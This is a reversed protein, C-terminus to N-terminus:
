HTLQPTAKTPSVAPTQSSTAAPAETQASPVQTTVPRVQSTMITVPVQYPVCVAVQRTITETVPRCKVTPVTVTKSQPVMITQTCTVTETIPKPVMRTVTVDYPQIEFTNVCQTVKYPIRQVRREPVTVTEQVPKFKTRTRQVNFTEPVYKVAPRTVAVQQEYCTTVSNYRVCPSACGGCGGGCRHGCQHACTVVPVVTTVPIRQTVYCVQSEVIKRMRTVPVTETVCEPIMRTIVKNTMEVTCHVQYLTREVNKTVPIKRYCKEVVTKPECVYRTIQKDVTQQKPVCYTITRTENVVESVMRTVPVNETRYETRYCTQSVTVPVQVCEYATVTQAVASQPSGSTAGQESPAQTEGSVFPVGVLGSVAFLVGATMVVRNPKVRQM